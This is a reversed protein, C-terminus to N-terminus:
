NDQGSGAIEERKEREGGQRGDNEAGRIPGREPHHSSMSEESPLAACSVISRTLALNLCPVPFFMGM